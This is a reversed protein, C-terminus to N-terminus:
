QRDFESSNENVKLLNNGFPKLIALASGRMLTDLRNRVMSATLSESDVLTEGHGDQGDM